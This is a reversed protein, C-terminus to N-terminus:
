SSDVDGLGALAALQMSVKAVLPMVVGDSLESPRARSM